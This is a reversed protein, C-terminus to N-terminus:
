PAKMDTPFPLNGEAMRVLQKSMEEFFLQCIKLRIIYDYWLSFPPEVLSLPSVIATPFAKHIRETQEVAKRKQDDPLSNWFRKAKLECAKAHERLQVFDM